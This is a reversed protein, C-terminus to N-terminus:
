EEVRLALAICTYVLTYLAYLTSPHNGFSIGDQLSYYSKARELNTLLYLIVSTNEESFSYWYYQSVQSVVLRRM